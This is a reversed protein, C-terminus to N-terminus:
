ESTRDSSGSGTQKRAPVGFVTTGPEVNRTVVAGAGTHAGDGIELPAVLMSGSGIFVDDGVNTHNKQEGDYNVFV